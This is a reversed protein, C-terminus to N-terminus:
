FSLTEMVTVILAFCALVVSVKSSNNSAGANLPRGGLSSRRGMHSKRAGDKYESGGKIAKPTVSISNIRDEIMNIKVTQTHVEKRTIQHHSLRTTNKFSRYLSHSKEESEKHLKIYYDRM